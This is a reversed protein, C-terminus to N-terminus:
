LNELVEVAAAESPTLPTAGLAAAWGPMSVKYYDFTPAGSRTPRQARDGSSGQWRLTGFPLDHRAIQEREGQYDFTPDAIDRPYTLAELETLATRWSADAGSQRRSKMTVVPTGAPSVHTRLRQALPGVFLLVKPASRRVAEAYLARVEASDVADEIHSQDEGSTDVPLVRLIGYTHTLGAATLFAQLRQGADGTCARMTFLDDHSEQEALVLISPKDLRGRFIPGTGFSAACRLGFSNFDPWAFGSVGGQLLQAFKTGPGRDFDGHAQRPPEWALDGPPADYGTAAGAVSGTYSLSHGDNNYKGDESFIQIGRQNDRRNSSTGGRGLRWATGYPFDRFPIPDSSYTYSAASQRTAGADVPLWGADDDAWEHVKTIAAKFSAIIGAVAGGQAAGGPHLVGVMRVNPSIVSADALHLSDPDATGGRAKVWSAL